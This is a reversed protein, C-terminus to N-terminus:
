IIPAFYIIGKQSPFAMLKRSNFLASTGAVFKFPTSQNEDGCVDAQQPDLVTSVPCDARHPHKRLPLPNAWGWVIDDKKTPKAKRVLLNLWKENTRGPRLDSTQWVRIVALESHLKILEDCGDEDLDVFQRGNRCHEGTGYMFSAYGFWKESNIYGPM